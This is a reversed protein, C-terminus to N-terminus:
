GELRIAYVSPVGIRGRSYIMKEDELKKLAKRTSNESINLEQRIESINLPKELLLSIIKKNRDNAKSENIFVIDEGEKKELQRFIQQHGKANKEVFRVREYDGEIMEEGLCDIKKLFAVIIPITESLAVDLNGPKTIQVELKPLRSRDFGTILNNNCKGNSYKLALYVKMNVVFKGFLVNKLMYIWEYELSDHNKIITNTKKTRFLTKIKNLLEYAEEVKEWPFRTCIEVYRSKAKLNNVNHGAKRLSIILNDLMKQMGMKTDFFVKGNIHNVGAFVKGNSTCISIKHGFQDPETQKSPIFHFGDINLNLIESYRMNLFLPMYVFGCERHIYIKYKDLPMVM